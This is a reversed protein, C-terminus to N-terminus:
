YESLELKLQDLTERSIVRSLKKYNEICANYITLAKISDSDYGFEDAWDVFNTEIAYGDLILSHLVDSIHPAVPKGLSKSRHGIGTYFDFEERVPKRGTGDSHGDIRAGISFAIRWGDCEWKDRVLGTGAPRIAHWVKANELILMVKDQTKM